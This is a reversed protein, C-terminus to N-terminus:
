PNEPPSPAKQRQSRVYDFFDRDHRLIHDRVWDQVFARFEASSADSGFNAVNITSLKGILDDHFGKHEIFGPYGVGKMLDEETSFHERVHRVLAMLVKTMETRDLKEPMDNALQFMRRHQEDVKAFGVSFADGWEFPTHM